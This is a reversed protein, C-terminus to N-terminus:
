NENIIKRVYRVHGMAWVKIYFKRDDDKRHCLIGECNIKLANYQKETVEVEVDYKIDM